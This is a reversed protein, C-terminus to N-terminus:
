RGVHRLDRPTRKADFLADPWRATKEYALARDVFRVVSDSLDPRLASLSRAPQTVALVLAENTTQAVHVLEGTLLTFITAGVAWLDSQADVEDWRGRAQEPPM